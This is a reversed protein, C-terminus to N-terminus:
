CAHRLPHGACGCEPCRQPTARLDYGCTLCLGNGARRRRRRSRRIFCSLQIAPIVAAASAAHVYHFILQFRGFGDRSGSLISPLPWGSGHACTIMLGLPRRCAPLTRWEWEAASPEADSSPAWWCQVAVMGRYSGVSRCGTGDEHDLSVRDQVRYSRLCLLCVGVFLLVSGASVLTLLIRTISYCSCPASAETSM